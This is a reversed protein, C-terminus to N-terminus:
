LNPNISFGGMSRIIAEGACTDWKSTKADIFILSGVEKKIVKLCKYGAGGAIVVEFHM